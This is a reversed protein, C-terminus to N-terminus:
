YHPPLEDAPSPIPADTGTNDIRSSLRTLQRQLMDIDQYQRLLVEHLEHVTNELHMIKLELTELRNNQQELSM